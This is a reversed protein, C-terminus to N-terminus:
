ELQQWDEKLGQHWNWCWHHVMCGGVLEGQVWVEVMEPLEEQVQFIGWLPQELPEDWLSELQVQFSVEM